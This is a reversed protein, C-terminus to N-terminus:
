QGHLNCKTIKKQVMCNVHYAHGCPFLAIGNNGLLVPTQLSLTCCPCMSSTLNYRMGWHHPGSGLSETSVSKGTDNNIALIIKPIMEPASITNHEVKSHNLEVPHKVGHCHLLTSFIISKYVNENFVARPINQHIKRLFEMANKPGHKVIIHNMLGHWDINLNKSISHELLYPKNCNVCFGNMIREFCQSTVKWQHQDLRPIIASLIFSDWVLLSHRLFDDSIRYKMHDILSLYETWLYPVHDCIQLCIIDLHAKMLKELMVKGFEFFTPTQSKYDQINFAPYPHGCNCETYNSSHIDIFIKVLLKLVNENKIKGLYNISINEILNHYYNIEASRIIECLYQKLDNSEEYKQKLNNLTEIFLKIMEELHKESTNSKIETIVSLYISELDTQLNKITTKFISAKHQENQKAADNNKIESLSNEFDTHIDNNKTHKNTNTANSSENLNFSIVSDDTDVISSINEFRTLSRSNSENSLDQTSNNVIVIGSELKTPQINYKSKIHSILSKLIKSVNSNEKINMIDCSEELVSNILQLKFIQCMNLCENFLKKEFLKILLFDISELTLCHFVGSSTILYVKDCIIQAMKIDPFEDNWLLVKANEPDLIYLGNSTYSFLYKNAIVSLQTFNISQKPWPKDRKRLKFVKNISPKFIPIPPLALAERFQHTRVVDGVATVEWIRSGPRACFIKVLNEEDSGGENDKDNHLNFLSEENETKADFNTNQNSIHLICAGFEGIRLKNGIPKYEEQITDCIYCRQLTSILLFGNEFSMQVIKSDLNMLVSSPENFMEGVLFTTVTTISIKGTEDGAYVETSNDNWCLCTIKQGFHERSVPLTKFRPKLLILIINGTVTAIAIAKENPSIQARYVAGGTQPIVRDFLCPDRLFCYLSGSTAGLVIYNKSVTMCTYQIRKTGTLPTYLLSNLEQWETLVYTIDLPEM